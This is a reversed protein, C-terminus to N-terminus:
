WRRSLCLRLSNEPKLNFHEATTVRASKSKASQGRKSACFVGRKVTGTGHRDKVWQATSVTFRKNLVVKTAANKPNGEEDKEEEAADGRAALPNLSFPGVTLAPFEYAM